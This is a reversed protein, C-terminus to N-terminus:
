GIQYIYSASVGHKKALAAVSAGKKREAKLMARFAGLEKGSRRPGRSSTKASKAPKKASKTESAESLLKQAMAVLQKLVRIEQASLAM